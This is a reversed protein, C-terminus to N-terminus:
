RSASASCRRAWHGGFVGSCTNPKEWPTAVTHRQAMAGAEGDLAHHQPRAGHRRFQLDRLQRCAPLVGLQHQDTAPLVVQDALLFKFPAFGPQALGPDVEPGDMERSPVGQVPYHQPLHHIIIWRCRAWPIRGFLGDVSAPVRIHMRGAHAERHPLFWRWLEPGTAMPVMDCPITM